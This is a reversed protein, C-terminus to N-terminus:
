DVISFMSDQNPLQQQSYIQNALMTTSMENDKSNLKNQAKKMLSSTTMEELSVNASQTTSNSGRKEGWERVSKPPNM